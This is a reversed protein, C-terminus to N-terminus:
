RHHLANIDRQFNQHHLPHLASFHVTAANVFLNSNYNVTNKTAVFRPSFANKQWFVPLKRVGSDRNVMGVNLNTTSRSENVPFVRIAPGSFHVTAFARGAAIAGWQGAAVPGPPTVAIKDQYISM